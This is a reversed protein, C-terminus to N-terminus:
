HNHSQIFETLLVALATNLHEILDDLVNQSSFSENDRSEVFISVFM